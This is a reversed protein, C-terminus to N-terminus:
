LLDAQRSLDRSWAAAARWADGGYRRRCRDRCAGMKEALGTAGATGAVRGRVGGLVAPELVCSQASLGGGPRCPGAGRPYEEPHPRQRRCRCQQPGAPLEANAENPKDGAHIRLENVGPTTATARAGPVMLGSASAVLAVTGNATKLYAPAAAEDLTKGTGAHTIKIKDAERLTNQLGDNKMDFAHNNSLSLLNFGFAGLSEFAAPPALFGRGGGGPVTQGELAVVSEFNTFKVDGTLLSQILPM